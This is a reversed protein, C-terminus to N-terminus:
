ATQNGTESEALIELSEDFVYGEIPNALGDM